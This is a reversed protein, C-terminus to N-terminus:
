LTEPKQIWGVPPLSKRVTIDSPTITINTDAKLEDIQSQLVRSSGVMYSHGDESEPPLDQIKEGTRALYAARFKADITKPWM